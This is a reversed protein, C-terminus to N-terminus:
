HIFSIMKEVVDEWKSKEPGKPYLDIEENLVKEIIIKLAYPDKQPIIFGNGNEIACTNGSQNTGLTLCGSAISEYHVIGFGEFFIDDSISPLLNLHSKLVILKKM